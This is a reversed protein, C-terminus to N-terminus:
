RVYISHKKAGGEGQEHFEGGGLATIGQASEM